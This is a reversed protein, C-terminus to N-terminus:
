LLRNKLRKIWSYFEELTHNNKAVNCMKCCGVTNDKTYHKDSDLRDLRIGEGISSLDDGCYFCEKIKNLYEEETLSFEMKKFKAQNIAAKYPNNQGWKKRQSLRRERVVPDSQRERQYCVNCVTGESHFRRYWRRANDTKCLVCIGAYKVRGGTKKGKM